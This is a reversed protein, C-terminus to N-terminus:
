HGRGGQDMQACSDISEWRWGFIGPHIHACITANVETADYIERPARISTQGDYSPDTSAVTFCDAAGRGSTRHKGLVTLTYDSGGHHDFVSNLMALLGGAYISMASFILLLVSSKIPAGRATQWILWTMILGGMIAPFLPQGWKLPFHPMGVGANTFVLSIPLAPLLILQLLSAKRLLVTQETEAITFNGQSRYAMGIAIWPAILTMTMVLHIPHPYLGMVVAAAVSGVNMYKAARHLRRVKEKRKEPTAGLSADRAIALDVSQQDLARLDPIDRMWASFVADTFIAQAVSIKRLQGDRPFLDFYVANKVKRM